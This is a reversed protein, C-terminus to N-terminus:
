GKAHLVGAAQDLQPAPAAQSGDTAAAMYAACLKFVLGGIVGGATNLMLDDVDFSGIAFVAQGGELMLSLGFSALMTGALPMGGNKSLLGLFLGLPIFIAINGVLNIMDHTSQSHLTRAIEKFPTLNGSHLQWSLYDPSELSRLLQHWLYKADILRFKFLIIEFLAYVYMALLARIMFGNLRRNPTM